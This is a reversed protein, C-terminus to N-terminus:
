FYWQEFEKSHMQPESRTEVSKSRIRNEPSLYDSGMEPMYDESPTEEAPDEPISPDEPLHLDKIRMRVIKDIQYLTEDPIKISKMTQVRKLGTDSLLEEEMERSNLAHFALPQSKTQYEPDPDQDSRKRRRKSKSITRLPTLYKCGTKEIFNKPLEVVEPKDALM